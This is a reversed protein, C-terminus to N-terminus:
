HYRRPQHRNFITNVCDEIADAFRCGDVKVKFLGHNRSLYLDVIRKCSKSNFTRSSFGPKFHGIVWTNAKYRYVVSIRSTLNWRAWHLFFVRRTVLGVSVLSDMNSMTALFNQLTEVICSYHIICNYM